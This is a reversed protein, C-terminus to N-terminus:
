DKLEKDKSIKSKADIREIRSFTEVSKQMFNTKNSHLITCAM